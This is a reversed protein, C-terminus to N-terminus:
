EMLLEAIAAPLYIVKCPPGDCEGEFWTEHSCVVCTFCYSHTNTVPNHYSSYFSLAFEHGEVYIVEDEKWYKSGCDPCYYGWITHIEHYDGKDEPYTQRPRSMDIRENEHLCGSVASASSMSFLVCMAVLICLYRKM